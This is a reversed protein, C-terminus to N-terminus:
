TATKGGGASISDRLTTNASADPKRRVSELALADAYDFAAKAVDGPSASKRQGAASAALQAAIAIAANEYNAWYRHSVGVAKRAEARKADHRAVNIALWVFLGVFVLVGVTVGDVTM